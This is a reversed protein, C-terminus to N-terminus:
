AGRLSGSSGKYSSAFPIVGSRCVVLPSQTVGTRVPPDCRRLEDAEQENAENAEWFVERLGELPREVVELMSFCTCVDFSADPLELDYISGEVFTVNEIQERKAFERAGTFEAHDLDVGTVSAAVAATGVSVSGPGCGVDLM